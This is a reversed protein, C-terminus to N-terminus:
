KAPPWPKDSMELKSNTDFVVPIDMTQAADGGPASLRIQGKLQQRSEDLLLLGTAEEMRITGSQTGALDFRMKMGQAEMGPGNPDSRVAASTAIVAVGGERKQLTYKADTIMGFGVAFTSKKGWSEGQEIPKDPYMALTAQTMEKVNKKDMYLAIANASLSVDAGPPLKKHVAERLEDIGNVDLVDGRPSVKVTYSQGLIAAAAEAGAPPTAQQASDYEVVGMPGVQKSAIWTFTERLRMNGQSDVDLVDLKLGTGMSQNIVQEQGMVTQSIRQEFVSRQYYTKGKELKLQLRVAAASASCWALSAIGMATVILIASRRTTM